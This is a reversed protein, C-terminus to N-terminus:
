LNKLRRILESFDINFKVNTSVLLGLYNKNRCVSDILISNYKTKNNPNIFQKQRERVLEVFNSNFMNNVNDLGYEKIISVVGVIDLLVNNDNDIYYLYDKDIGTINITHGPENDKSYFMLPVPNNKSLQTQVHKRSFDISTLKKDKYNMQIYKNVLKIIEYANMTLSNKAIIKITDNDINFTSRYSNYISVVLCIGDNLEDTNLIDSQKYFNLNDKIFIEKDKSFNERYKINVLHKYKEYLKLWYQKDKIM